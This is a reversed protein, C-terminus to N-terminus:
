FNGRHLLAFGAVILGVILTGIVYAAASPGRWFYYAEELNPAGDPSDRRLAARRIRNQALFETDSFGVPEGPVVKRNPLSRFFEDRRARNAPTDAVDAPAFDKLLPSPDGADQPSPRRGRVSPLNRWEAVLHCKISHCQALTALVDDVALMRQLEGVSKAVVADLSRLEHKLSTAVVMLCDECMGTRTARDKCSQMLCDVDDPAREAILAGFATDFENNTAFKKM